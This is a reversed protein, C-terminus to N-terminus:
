QLQDSHAICDLNGERVKDMPEVISAGIASFLHFVSVARRVRDDAGARLDVANVRVRHDTM